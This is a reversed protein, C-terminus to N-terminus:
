QIVLIAPFVICKRDNTRFKYTPVKLSKREKNILQFVEMFLSQGGDTVTSGQVVHTQLM